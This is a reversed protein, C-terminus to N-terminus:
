NGSYSGENRDYRISITGYYGGNWNRLQGKLAKKVRLLNKDARCGHIEGSGKMPLQQKWNRLQGKLAKKVRLLNKDARCGHIEGPDKMPLQQKWNRM